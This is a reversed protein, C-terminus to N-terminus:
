SSKLIYCVCRIVIYKFCQYFLIRSISVIELGSELLCSKYGKLQLRQRTIEGKAKISKSAIREIKRNCWFFFTVIVLVFIRVDVFIINYQAHILIILYIISLCRYSYYHYLTNLFKSHEPRFRLM